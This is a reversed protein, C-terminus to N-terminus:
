PWQCLSLWDTLIAREGLLQHHGHLYHSAHVQVWGHRTELSQEYPFLRNKAVTETECKGGSNDVRNGMGQLCEICFARWVRCIGLPYTKWSLPRQQVGM